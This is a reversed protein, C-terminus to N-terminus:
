IPRAFLVVFISVAIDPYDIGVAAARERLNGVMVFRVILRAPRRVAFPNSESTLDVLAIVWSNPQRRRSAAGGRREGGITQIQNGARQLPRIIALRKIEFGSDFALQM